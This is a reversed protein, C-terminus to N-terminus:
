PRAEPELNLKRLGALLRDHDEKADRFSVQIDIGKGQNVFQGGGPNHLFGLHHRNVLEVIKAHWFNHENSTLLTM